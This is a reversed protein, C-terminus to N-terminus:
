QPIIQNDPTPIMTIIMQLEMFSTIDAIQQSVEHFGIKKTTSRTLLTNRLM